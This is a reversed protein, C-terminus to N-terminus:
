KIGGARTLEKKVGQKDVYYRYVSDKSSAIAELTMSDSCITWYDTNYDYTNFDEHEHGHHYSLINGSKRNSYDVNISCSTIRLNKKEQYSSLIRQLQTDTGAHSLVICDDFDGNLAVEALWELQGKSYGGQSVIETVEGNSNFPFRDDNYDLCIIRTTKGYKELDYYYYKSLKKGSYVYNSDQVVKVNVFESFVGNYWDLDSVVYSPYHKPADPHNEQWLSHMVNDDHNGALVFVPKKCNKLPALIEKIQDICHQRVTLNPNKKKAENYTNSEPTEYGNIIDGGIVIFDIDSSTNAIAVAKAVTARRSELRNTTEELPDYDRKGDEDLDNVYSGNHLDSIFLYNVSKGTTKFHEGLTNVTPAVAIEEQTGYFVESETGQPIQLKVDSLKGKVSIRVYCDSSITYSGSKFKGNSGSVEVGSARMLNTNLSVGGDMRVYTHILFEKNSSLVSGEPLFALADGMSEYGSKVVIKYEGAFTHNIYGNTPSTHNLKYTVLKAENDESSTTSSVKSSSKKSSSKKSSSKKSSSKESRDSSAESSDDSSTEEESSSVTSSSIKSSESSEKNESPSVNAEKSEGCATLVTSLLIITLLLAVIKKM